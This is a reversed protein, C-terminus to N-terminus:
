QRGAPAYHTHRTIVQGVISKARQDLRTKVIHLQGLPGSVLLKRAKCRHQKVQAHVQGVRGVVRTQGALQILVGSVRDDHVQGGRRRQERRKALLNGCCAHAAGVHPHHKFFREAMIQRGVNGDVGANAIHEAFPLDEPDVMVQALRRNLVQKRQPKAIRQKLRQPSTLVDRVNLDGDGFLQTNFLTARKVVAGPRQAVHHLVVRQLQQARHRHLRGDICM